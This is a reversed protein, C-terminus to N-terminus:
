RTGELAEELSDFYSLGKAKLPERMAYIDIGLEGAALRARKLHENREREESKSLVEEVQSHQVVVVGDDDAVVLDGACVRVGACVVPVNVSGLSAKVTGRSSIAKAWVPFKMDRLTAVDRCGVDLVLGVVGRTQMSTALLDGVYGDTCDSHCAVVIVDGPRCQEIAVHLMWNDGPPVLVTVAAGAVCAGSYIPRLYAHCLGERGMAEHVTASGLREFRQAVDRDIAPRNRVVIGNM